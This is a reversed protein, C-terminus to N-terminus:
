YMLDMGLRLRSRVPHTFRIINNLKECGDFMETDIVDGTGRLGSIDIETLQRCDKFMRATNDAEPARWSSLDLEELAYCCHFTESFAYNSANSVDWTELGYIHKLNICAEFMQSFQTCTATDLGSVDVEVLSRCDNLLADFSIVSDTEWNTFDISQLSYCDAFMHSFTTVNSVDWNEIPIYTLLGCGYFMYSMNEASSTDWKEVDLYRLKMDGSNDSGQFMGLFSKVNSVDWEGIGNLETCRSANFMLKMNEVHSTDILGLGNIETLNSWLPMDYSNRAAFMYSCRPNAYIYEGVIYVDTAARYGKIRGTNALDANWSEDYENPVEQTFTISQIDSMSISGKYFGFSGPLTYADTNPPTM